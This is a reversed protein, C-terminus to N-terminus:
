DGLIYDFLEDIMKEREKITIFKKDKDSFYDQTYRAKKFELWKKRLAILQKSNNIM